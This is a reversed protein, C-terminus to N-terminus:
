AVLLPVLERVSDLKELDMIMALLKEAKLRSIRGSFDVNTWFKTLKEENSLPNFRPDGKAKEM